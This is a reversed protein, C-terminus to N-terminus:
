RYSGGSRVIRVHKFGNEDLFLRIVEIPTINKPGLFVEKILIPDFGREPLDQYPKLENQNAQFKVNKIDGVWDNIYFLSFLRWENEEQFFKSKVVYSYRIVSILM